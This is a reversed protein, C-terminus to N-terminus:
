SFQDKAILQLVKKIQRKEHSCPRQGTTKRYYPCHNGQCAPRFFCSQCQEDTEEGITTWRALKDYDIEVTGDENLRGLQNEGDHFALTCKYIRGDSAVIMSNPKAAYCVSATPQLSRAILSSMSVGAEIAEETFEWIKEDITQQNCVPLNHDNQGGWRAVPRFFLKFRRDDGILQKLEIIFQPISQLSDEDFNTRITVEFEGQIEKMHQLNELITEYSGTGNALHRRQNHVQALGDITIMFQNVGNELLQEVKEKTLLYGNTAIEAGYSFDFIRAANLFSNSLENIIDLGLLPEGGFWSVTLNRLYKGHQDIYKKLGNVTSTTMNGRSFDEYCYVCRFNCAESPLLVLHLSDRRHMSQHLFTARVKEDIDDRVIFGQDILPQLLPHIEVEKNSLLEKVSIGEEKEFIAIAGTYSNYVILEGIETTTM